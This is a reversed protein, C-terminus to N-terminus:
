RCPYESRLTLDNQVFYSHHIRERKLNKVGDIQPNYLYKDMLSCKNALHIRAKALAGIKFDDPQRKMENLYAYLLGNYREKCISLCICDECPLKVEDRDQM